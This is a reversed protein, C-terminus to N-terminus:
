KGAKNPVIGSKFDNTNNRNTNQNKQSSNILQERRNFEVKKLKVIRPITFDRKIKSKKFRNEQESPSLNIYKIRYMKKYENDRKIALLNKSWEFEKNFRADEPNKGKTLYRNVKTLIDDKILEKTVLPLYKLKINKRHGICENYKRINNNIQDYAKNILVEIKDREVKTLLEYIHKEKMQSYYTKRKPLDLVGPELPFIEKTLQITDRKTRNVFEPIKYHKPRNIVSETLNYKQIILDQFEKSLM